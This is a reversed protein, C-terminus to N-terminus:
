KGKKHKSRSHGEEIAERSHETIEEHCPGDCAALWKTDDLLLPGERGEKHHVHKSKGKCGPKKIECEPHEKLFQRRKKDYLVLDTALHESQKKIGRAKAIEAELKKDQRSAGGFRYHYSCKGDKYEHKNVCPQVLCRFESM